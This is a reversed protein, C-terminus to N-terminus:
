GHGEVALVPLPNSIAPVRDDPPLAIPTGVPDSVGLNLAKEAEAALEPFSPLEADWELMTSAGGTLVAALRYLDWVTAAVPRDHSDLLHGGVDRHGALHIEVVREHPVSLLYEVPDLDANVASVYVNNVDLLLGCGTRDTLRSLFEGESMTSTAFQLYATPNELLLPRELVDQVIAVRAAVHALSEEDFPMPLLDHTNMGLVGTWCLHDSVWPARIGDALRKLRALYNDDLPDTSGISLSVGHLAVPYREAVQDLVYRPRGRSDMFNESIVEFWAVEPQHELVYRFHPQRLGVGVGLDPLGIRPATM